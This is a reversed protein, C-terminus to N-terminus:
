PSLLERVKKEIEPLANRVAESIDLTMPQMKEISITLLDIKPLEGLLSAAEILDRMGIDHATLSRPFDRAFRPALHSVTGPPRGDAAADIIIIHPYDQVLSLLEFGGTGGDLFVAQDALGSSGLRQVAIVGIGEDGLLLNGIGLVLTKGPRTKSRSV